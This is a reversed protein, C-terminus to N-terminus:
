CEVIRLDDQWRAYQMATHDITHHEAFATGPKEYVPYSDTVLVTEAPVALRALVDKINEGTINTVVQSRAEGNREVLAVVPTKNAAGRGRKGHARGGIYTEDAEVVGSLKEQSQQLAPAMAHRIRHMMFWATKNCEDLLRSIELASVGNKGVCLMAYGLLWKSLLVKSDEFITGVLVSFQQRCAACKWLRRYSV